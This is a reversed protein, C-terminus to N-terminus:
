VQFFLNFDSNIIECDNIHLPCTEDFDKAFYNQYYNRYNLKCKKHQPIIQERKDM